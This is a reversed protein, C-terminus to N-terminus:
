WIVAWIFRRNCKQEIVHANRIPDRQNKLLSIFLLIAFPIAINFTSCIQVHLCHSYYINMVKFTALESFCGHINKWIAIYFKWGALGIVMIVQQSQFAAAFIKGYHWHLIAVRGIRYSINAKENVSACYWWQLSCCCCSHCTADYDNQREMPFPPIQLIGRKSFIWFSTDANCIGQM